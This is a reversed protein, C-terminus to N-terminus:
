IEIRAVEFDEEESLTYAYGIDDEFSKNTCPVREEVESGWSDCGLAFPDNESSESRTERNNQDKLSYIGDSPQMPEKSQNYEMADVAMSVLHNNDNVSSVDEDDDEFVDELPVEQEDNSKLLECGPLPPDSQDIPQVQDQQKADGDKQEPSPTQVVPSLSRSGTELHTEDNVVPEEVEEEEEETVSSTPEDKVRKSIDKPNPPIPPIPRVVVTADNSIQLFSEQRQTTPLNKETEFDISADDPFNVQTQKNAHGHYEEIAAVSEDLMAMAKCIARQAMYKVVTREDSSAELITSELDELADMRQKILSSSSNKNADSGEELRSLWQKQKRILGIAYFFMTKNTQRLEKLYDDREELLSLGEIEVAGEILVSDNANSNYKKNSTRDVSTPSTPSTRGEEKKRELVLNKYTKGSATTPSSNSTKTASTGSSFSQRLKKSIAPVVM